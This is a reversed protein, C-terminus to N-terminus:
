RHGSVHQKDVSFVLRRWKSIDDDLFPLISTSRYLYSIGSHVGKREVDNESEASVRLHGANVGIMRVPRFRPNSLTEGVEVSRQLAFVPSGSSGGFSFAEFAMCDGRVDRHRYPFRPDSAITGGRMIPRQTEHDHWEPYGPFAVFDGVSFIDGTFEHPQAILNYGVSVPNLPVETRVEPVWVKTLHLCAVDDNISRYTAIPAELLHATTPEEDISRDQITRFTLVLHVPEFGQGIYKSDKYAMDVVHRNTILLCTGARNLVFFGTGTGRHTKVGNSHTVSLKATCYLFTNKLGTDM